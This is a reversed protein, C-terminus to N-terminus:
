RTNRATHERVSSHANGILHLSDSIVPRREHRYLLYHVLRRHSHAPRRRVTLRTRATAVRAIIILRHM